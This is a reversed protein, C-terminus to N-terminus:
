VMLTTARFAAPQLWGPEALEDTSGYVTASAGVDTVAASLPVDFVATETDHTAGAVATLM